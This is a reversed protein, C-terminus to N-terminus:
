SNKDPAAAYCYICEFIMDINTEFTEAIFTDRNQAM